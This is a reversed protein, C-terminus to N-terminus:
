RNIPVQKWTQTATDFVDKTTRSDLFQRISADRLRAYEPDQKTPNSADFKMGRAREIVEQPIVVPKLPTGPRNGEAPEAPATLNEATPTDDKAEEARKLFLNAWEQQSDKTAFGDGTAAYAAQRMQKADVGDAFQRFEGNILVGEQGPIRSIGAAADRARIANYGSGAPADLFARVSARRIAGKSFRPDPGIGSTADAITRKAEGADAAGSIGAQPDSADQGTAGASTPTILTGRGIAEAGGKADQGTAGAFTPTAFAGRGIAEASEGDTSVQPKYGEFFRAADQLPALGLGELAANASSLSRGVQVIDNENVRVAGPPGPPDDPGQRGPELPDSDSGVENGKPGKLDPHLYIDAPDVKGGDGAGEGQGQDRKQDPKQDPTMNQQETETPKPTSSSSVASGDFAYNKPLPKTLDHGAIASMGGYDGSEAAGKLAGYVMSAYPAAVTLLGEARQRTSSNPDLVAPVGTLRVVPGVLKDLGGIARKLFGQASAGGPAPPKPKAFSSTPTPTPAPKTFSGSSSTAATSKVGPKFRVNAEPKFKVKSEPKFRVNAEPKFLIRGATQKARQAADLVPSAIDDWPDPLIPPM